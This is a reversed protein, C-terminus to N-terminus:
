SQKYLIKKIQSPSVGYKEGYKIAFGNKSMRGSAANFHEVICRNRESREDPTMGDKNRPKSAITKQSVKYAIDTSISAVQLNLAQLTTKDLYGLSEAKGIRQRLRDIHETYDLGHASCDSAIGALRMQLDKLIHQGGQSDLPIRRAEYHEFLADIDIEEQSEGDHVSVRGSGFRSKISGM